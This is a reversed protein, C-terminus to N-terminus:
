KELAWVSGTPVLYVNYDPLPNSALEALVAPAYLPDIVVVDADASPLQTKIAALTQATQVRFSRRNDTEHELRYAADPDPQLSWANTSDVLADADTDSRLSVPAVLDAIEEPLGPLYTIRLDGNTDARVDAMLADARSANEQWGTVFPAAGVITGDQWRLTGLTAAPITRTIQDVAQTQDNEVTAVGTAPVYWIDGKKLLVSTKSTKTQSVWTTHGLNVTVLPTRVFPLLLNQLTQDLTEVPAGVLITSIKPDPIRDFFQYVLSASSDIERTSAIDTHTLLLVYDRLVPNPTQAACGTGSCVMGDGHLPTNVTVPGGTCAVDAIATPSTSKALAAQEVTLVSGTYSRIAAPFQAIVLQQRAAPPLMPWVAAALAPSTCAIPASRNTVTPLPTENPLLTLDTPQASVVTPLAPLNTGTSISSAGFAVFLLAVAIVAIPIATARHTQLYQLISPLSPTTLKQRTATPAPAVRTTSAPPVLPSLPGAAAAPVRPTSPKAPQPQVLPPPTQQTATVRPQAAPPTPKAPAPNPKAGTPKAPAPQSIAAPRLASTTSVSPQNLPAQQQITASPKPGSRVRRGVNYDVECIVCFGDTPYWHESDNPCPALRSEVMALVSAWEKPTPRPAPNNPNRVFAREFLNRVLVPLCLLSPAAPPPVFPQNELYPFINHTICYIHAQEVDPGGPRAKGAFPHFGQMLLQFILVALGFADHDPTRNVRAFDAGQLEPSTYEPVGVLCRHVAGNADTVQMSDCDVMTILADDNFLANKFNVDGVVYGKRHIADIAIALNHATRYLHRHNLTAHEKARQQPQLLDYLDDSRKLKPMTYGAFKTGIYLVDIPWAISVHGLPIRTADEPPNQTMALVKAALAPNLRHPHYIKAVLDPHGAVDFVAGEGGEGLKKTTTFVTKAASLYRTM